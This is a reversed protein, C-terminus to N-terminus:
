TSSSWTTWCGWACPPCAQLLFSSCRLTCCHHTADAEPAAAGHSGAAGPVRHAHRCSLLLALTCPATIAHYCCSFQDLLGALCATPFGADLLLGPVGAMGKINSIRLEHVELLATCCASTEEAARMVQPTHSISSRWCSTCAPAMWSPGQMSRKCASADHVSM